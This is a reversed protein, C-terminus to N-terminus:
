FQLTLNRHQALCPTVFDVQESTLRRQERLGLNSRAYAEFDALEAYFGTKAARRWVIEDDIKALSIDIQAIAKALDPSAGDIARKANSLPKAAAESGSIRSLKDYAPKIRDM